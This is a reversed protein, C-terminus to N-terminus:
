SAVETSTFALETLRHADLQPPRVEAVLRGQALVLVRDAVRALEEFDSSVVMVATGAEVSRRVLAWIDARANVDVGQTPEDLLLVRPQRRLWRGVIVKQQNGGSLTSIPQADSAAKISFEKISQQADTEERGHRLLLGSFYKAVQGASVNERVSMDPFAADATRDEPVFALGAKMAQGATKFRASRGDLLIEGSTVPHAGFIMRLLESRGSGLLGAVGLVEDGLLKFSVGQIPGGVLNRVELAVQEDHVEPMDPFVRDLPRGVILQILRGEDLGAADVTGVHRGDRLATVRHAIDLVEPLRHSVYIITQGEAAHRRLAALLLDVESAPLSATPEDLVLVGDHEGEQDQLARAIAVMTRDAPRLAGVLTQPSAQIEFRELLRQTRQHLARWRIHAGGRTEFGRGIAMNEAVTLDPFVAPTQHVFHLKAAKAQASTFSDAHYSRGQVEIEGGPDAEYVGALIKILTSKGSGNGGVLAQIEGRRVELNVNQLARTGPFTKSLRLTRLVLESSHPAATSVSM